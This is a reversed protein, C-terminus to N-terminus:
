LPPDLSILISTVQNKAYYAETLGLLLTQTLSM